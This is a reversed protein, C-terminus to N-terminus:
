MFDACFHNCLMDEQSFYSLQFFTRRSRSHVSFSLLKIFLKMAPLHLIMSKKTHDLFLIVIHCPSVFSEIGLFALFLLDFILDISMVKKLMQQMTCFTKYRLSLFPKSSLKLLLTSSQFLAMPSHHHSSFYLMSAKKPLLGPFIVLIVSM